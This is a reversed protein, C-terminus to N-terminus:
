SSSLVTQAWKSMAEFRSNSTNNCELFAADFQLYELCLKFDAWMHSSDCLSGLLSYLNGKGQFEGAEIGFRLSNMNKNKFSGTSSLYDPHLPLEKSAYLVSPRQCHITLSSVKSFCLLLGQFPIIQRVIKRLLLPYHRWTEKMQFSAVSSNPYGRSFEPERKTSHQQSTIQQVNVKRTPDSSNPCHEDAGGHGTSNSNSLNSVQSNSCLDTMPSGNAIRLLITCDQIVLFLDILSSLPIKLRSLFNGDVMERCETLFTEFFADTNIDSTCCQPLVPLSASIRKIHSASIVLKAELTTFNLVGSGEPHSLLASNVAAELSSVGMSISEINNHSVFQESLSVAAYLHAMPSSGEVGEDIVKLYEADELALVENAANALKPFPLSEIRLLKGVAPDEAGSWTMDSCFGIDDYYLRGTQVMLYLKWLNVLLIRKQRRVKFPAIQTLERLDRGVFGYASTSFYVIKIAKNLYEEALDRKDAFKISYFAMLLLTQISPLLDLDHWHLTVKERYRSIRMPRNEQMYPSACLFLVHTLAANNSPSFEEIFQNKPPLIPIQPHTADYFLNILNICENWPPFGYQQLFENTFRPEFVTDHTKLISSSTARGTGESPIQHQPSTLPALISELSLQVNESNVASAYTPLLNNSSSPSTSGLDNTSVICRSKSNSRSHESGEFGSSLNENQRMEHSKSMVSNDNPEHNNDLQCINLLSRFPVLPSFSQNLSPSSPCGVHSPLTRTDLGLYPPGSLFRPSIGYHPPFAHANIPTSRHSSILRSSYESLPPPQSSPLPPLLGASLLLSQSDNTAILKRPQRRGGRQSEVFVCEIGAIACNTCVEKENRGLETNSRPISGEGDCKIKKARCALCARRAVKRKKDSPSRGSCSM